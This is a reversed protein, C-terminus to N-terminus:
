SPRGALLLAVCSRGRSSRRDASAAQQAEIGGDRNAHEGGTPPPRACRCSGALASPVFMSVSRVVPFFCDRPRDAAERGSLGLGRDRDRAPAAPPVFRVAAGFRVPALRAAGADLAGPVFRVAVFRVVAGFRVDESRPAAPLDPVAPVDLDFRDAAFGPAGPAFRVAFRPAPAPSLAGAFRGVGLRPRVPSSRARGRGVREVSPPARLLGVRVGPAARPSAARPPPM